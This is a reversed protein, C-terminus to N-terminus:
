GIFLNRYFCDGIYFGVQRLKLNFVDKLASIKLNM